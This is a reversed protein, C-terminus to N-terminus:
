YNFDQFTIKKPLSLLSGTFNIPVFPVSCEICAVLDKDSDGFYLAESPLASTKKLISTIIETKSLPAGWIESFNLGLKKMIFRAEDQPTATCVYCKSPDLSKFFQQFGPIFDSELVRNVVIQKFRAHLEVSRHTTLNRGFFLKEWRDFKESRPMGGNQLHDYYILDAIEQSEHIYLERFANGKIDVSDKIVGDFDFIFIM